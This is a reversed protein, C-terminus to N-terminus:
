VSSISSSLLGVLETPRSLFSSHDSDIKLSASANTATARRMAPSLVQDDTCVVYTSPVSRWAVSSSANMTLTAAPM